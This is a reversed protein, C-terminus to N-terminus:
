EETRSVWVKKTAVGWARFIMAKMQMCQLNELSKLYLSLIHRKVEQWGTKWGSFRSNSKQKMCDPIMIPIGSAASIEQENHLQAM